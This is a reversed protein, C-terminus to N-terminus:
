EGDPQWGPTRAREIRALPSAGCTGESSRPVPPLPVFEDLVEDSLRSGQWALHRRLKTSHVAREEPAVAVFTLM